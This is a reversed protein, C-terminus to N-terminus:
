DFIKSNYKKKAETRIRDLVLSRKSITEAYQHGKAIWLKRIPKPNFMTLPPGNSKTRLRAKIIPLKMSASLKTKTLNYYSNARECGAQANPAASARKILRFAYKQKREHLFPVSNRLFTWQDIIHDKKSAIELAETNERQNEYIMRMVGVLESQVSENDLDEFFARCMDLKNRMEKITKEFM